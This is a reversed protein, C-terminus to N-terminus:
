SIAICYRTERRDDKGDGEIDIGSVGIDDIAPVIGTNGPIIGRPRDLVLRMDKRADPTPRFSEKPRKGKERRM